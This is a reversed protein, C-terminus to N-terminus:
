RGELQGLAELSSQVEACQCQGTVTVHRHQVCQTGPRGLKERSNFRAMASGGRRASRGATMTVTACRLGNKKINKGPGFFFFHIGCWRM